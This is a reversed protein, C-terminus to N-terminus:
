GGVFGGRVITMLWGGQSAVLPHLIPIPPRWSIVFWSHLIEKTKQRQRAPMDQIVSPKHGFIGVRNLHMPDYKTEVFPEPIISVSYSPELDAHWVSWYRWHINEVTLLNHNNFYGTHLFHFLESPLTQQDFRSWPSMNLGTFFLHKRKSQLSFIVALFTIRCVLSFSTPIRSIITRVESHRATFLLGHIKGEFTFPSSRTDQQFSFESAFSLQAVSTESVRSKSAVSLDSHLGPHGPTRSLLDSWLKESISYWKM